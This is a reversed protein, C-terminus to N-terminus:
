SHSGKFNKEIFKVKIGKPCVAQRKYLSSRNGCEETLMEETM